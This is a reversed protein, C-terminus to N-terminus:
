RPSNCALVGITGRGFKLLPLNPRFLKDQGDANGVLVTFFDDHMSITILVLIGYTWEAKPNIALDIAEQLTM